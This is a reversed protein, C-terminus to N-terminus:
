IQGGGSNIGGREVSEVGRLMLMGLQWVDTCSRCSIQASLHSAVQTCSRFRM